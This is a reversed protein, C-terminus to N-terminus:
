FSQNNLMEEAKKLDDLTDIGINELETESVYIKFGHQLWRLQELSEAIELPTQPLMSLKLLIDSRYAYIGIHKYFPHNGPWMNKEMNRVFPIPSRSFYLAFHKKCFVVKPKNMDFIDDNARIRKALTAIETKSEHFSDILLKIQENRIFPEDGQINIIHTFKKGTLKSILKFAEACRDTGSLHKESTMVAKGGFATVTNYIRKDDTAVYVNELIAESREYVWQILPKNSLLALPKGPFRVSAYRAPIIGLFNM